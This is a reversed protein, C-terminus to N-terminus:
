RRTVAGDASYGIFSLRITEVRPQIDGRILELRPKDLMLFRMGRRQITQVISFGVEDTWERTQIEIKITKRRRHSVERVTKADFEGAV